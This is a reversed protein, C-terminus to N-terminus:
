RKRGRRDIDIIKVLKMRRIELGKGREKHNGTTGNKRHRADHVSSCSSFGKLVKEKRKRRRLANVAVGGGGGGM